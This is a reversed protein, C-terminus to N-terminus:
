RGRGTPRFQFLSRLGSLRQALSQPTLGQCSLFHLWESVELHTVNVVNLGLTFDLFDTIGHRYASITRSSRNAIEMNELFNQLLTANEEKHNLSRTKRLRGVPMRHRNGELSSDAPADSHFGFPRLEV